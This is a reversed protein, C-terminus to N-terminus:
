TTAEIKLGGDWRGKMLDVCISAGARLPAKRLSWVRETNKTARWGVAGRGRTKHLQHVRVGVAECEAGTSRVTCPPSRSTQILVAISFISFSSSDAEIGTGIHCSHACALLSCGCEHMASHIRTSGTADIRIVTRVDGSFFEVRACRCSPRRSVAGVKTSVSVHEVVWGQGEMRESSMQFIIDPWKRM